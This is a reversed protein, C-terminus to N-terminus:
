KLFFKKQNIVIKLHGESEITLIIINNNHQRKHQAALHFGNFKDDLKGETYDDIENINIVFHKENNFVRKFIGNNYVQNNNNPQAIIPNKIKDNIVGYIDFFKVYFFHLLILLNSPPGFNFLYWGFFLTFLISEKDM